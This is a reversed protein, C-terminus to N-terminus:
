LTIEVGALHGATANTQSSAPCVGASRNDVVLCWVVAVWIQEPAEVLAKLRGAFFAVVPYFLRYFLASVRVLDTYVSEGDIQGMWEM